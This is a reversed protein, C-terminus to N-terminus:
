GESNEFHVIEAAVGADSREGASKDVHGTEAAAVLGTEVDSKEFVTVAAALRAPDASQHKPAVAGVDAAFEVSHEM